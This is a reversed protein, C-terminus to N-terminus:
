GLSLPHGAGPRHALLNEVAGGRFGQGSTSISGELTTVGNVHVVVVGGRQGDWPRAQIIAGNEITVNNFQPVRVVQTRGATAYGHQLGACALHLTNGEVRRVVAFEHFGSGNLNTIAGYAAGNSTDISAGQMQMIFVLDGSELAGSRPSTLQSIDTVQISTAGASADAALVAYQNVVAFGDSLTFDGDSGPLAFEQQVPTSTDPSTQECATLLTCAAALLAQLSFRSMHM